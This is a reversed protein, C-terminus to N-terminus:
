AGSRPPLSSVAAKVAQGAECGLQRAPENAHSIRGHELTDEADGIRASDAAVTVAAIGFQALLDLGATGAADKGVGADNFVVLLPPHQIASRASAIGGHSGTVVVSGAHESELAAIVDMVVIPRGRIDHIRPPTM